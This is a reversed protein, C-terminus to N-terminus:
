NNLGLILKIVFAVIQDTLFLFIAMFTAMVFVMVVSIITERKTPWSIKPLEAKTNKLYAIFNTKKKDATKTAM